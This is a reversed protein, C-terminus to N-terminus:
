AVEILSAINSDLPFVPCPTSNVFTPAAGVHMLIATAAESVSRAVALLRASSLLAQTNFAVSVNGRMAPSTTLFIRVRGTGAAIKPVHYPLVRGIM